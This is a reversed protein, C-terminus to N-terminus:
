SILSFMHLTPQIYTKSSIDTYYGREKVPHGKNNWLWPFSRVFAEVLTWKCLGTHFLRPDNDFAFIISINECYPM